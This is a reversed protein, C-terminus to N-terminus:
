AYWHGERIWNDSRTTCNYGVEEPKKPLSKIGLTQLWHRGKVTNSEAHQWCCQVPTKKCLPPTHSPTPQPPYTTHVGSPKNGGGNVALALVFLLLVPYLLKLRLALM